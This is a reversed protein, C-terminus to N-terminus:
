RGEAWGVVRDHPVETEGRLGDRIAHGLIRLYVRREGEHARAKWAWKPLIVALAPWFWLGAAMRYLMLLNRHYYYVKWMPHFRGRQESAFTSCDHEFRVQPAFGLRDGSASLGLTYIGDDGYIFLGPDPYGAREVAKRSVFFGVFSTVDIPRIDQGAYAEPKLHFGDRGGGKVITKALARGHWFPNRSPRNMECIRGDPFYVAAALGDYGVPALAHFASLGGPEPRGDDDMLVLWDPDHATLVRRMGAEFGGAGGSNVRSRIVDMRPDSCTALWDSTGDTSANDVVVLASLEEPPSALLREVTVKLQALRNYTVVVAVLRGAGGSQGM